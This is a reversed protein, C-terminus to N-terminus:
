VLQAQFFVTHCISIHVDVMSFLTVHFYLNAQLLGLFVNVPQHHILFLIFHLTVYPHNLSYKSNPGAHEDQNTCLTKAKTNPRWTNTKTSLLRQIKFQVFRLEIWKLWVSQNLSLYPCTVYLYLSQYTYLPIFYGKLMIRQCNHSWDRPESTDCVRTWHFFHVPSM